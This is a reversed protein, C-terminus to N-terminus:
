LTDPQLQNTPISSPRPLKISVVAILALPMWFFLWLEKPRTLLRDFDLMLSAMGFVLLAPYIRCDPQKWLPLSRYSAVALVALLLGLGVVGGDRLTALYASHAHDFTKNYADVSVNSLYGLGFIPHHRISEFTAQWIGLRFSSGTVREAWLEPNISFLYLSLMGLPIVILLSRWGMLVISGLVLAALATRSQGLLVVAVLTLCLILYLVKQALGVRSLFLNLSLLFFIGYACAAKVEHHMIGLTQLREKPFEHQSYWVIMSVLAVLGAVWVLRTQLFDLRDKAHTWILGTVSLFGLIQVGRWATLGSGYLTWNDSWLTSAVMYAIYAAILAILVNGRLVELTERWMFILPLLIFLSYFIALTSASPFLFFGALFVLYLWFLNRRAFFNHLKSTGM